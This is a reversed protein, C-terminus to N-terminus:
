EEAGDELEKKRGAEFNDPDKDNEKDEGNEKERRQTKEQEKDYDYGLKGALTSDDAWGMMSHVQYAKTDAELDSHVMPPFEIATTTKTPVSEVQPKSLLEKIRCDHKLAKPLWRLLANEKLTTETSTKPIIGKAMAREIIKTLVMQFYIQFTDQMDEISRVYPNESVLTSAYNANSADSLLFEPATVGALVSLKILRGDQKSDDARIEPNCWKYEISENHVIVSGLKPMKKAATSTGTPTDADSMANSTKTVATPTASKGKLIKELIHGAAIRNKRVRGEVFQDLQILRRISPEIYPRGRQMNMDVNLKIHIMDKDLIVEKSTTSDGAPVWERRYEKVTEADNPDKVIKTIQEPEVFRIYCSGVADEFFRLFAEGDRLVRRVIEKQRLEMLNKPDGWFKELTEQVKPNEDDAHYVVGRGIVYHVASEILCRSESTKWYRDRSNKLLISRDTDSLEKASDEGGLKYWPGDTLPDRYAESIADVGNEKIHEVINIEKPKVM